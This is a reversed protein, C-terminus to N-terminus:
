QRHILPIICISEYDEPHQLSLVELLNMQSEKSESLTGAIVQCDYIAAYKIRRNEELIENYNNMAWNYNQVRKQTNPSADPHCKVQNRFETM